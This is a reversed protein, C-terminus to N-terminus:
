GNLIELYKDGLRTTSYDRNSKMYILGLEQLCCQATHGIAWGQKVKILDEKIIERPTTSGFRTNEFVIEVAKNTILDEVSLNSGSVANERLQLSQAEKDHINNLIQEISYLDKETQENSQGAYVKVRLETLAKDLQKFAEM